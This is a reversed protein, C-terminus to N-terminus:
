IFIMLGILILLGLIFYIDRGGFFNMFRSKNNISKNSKPEREM